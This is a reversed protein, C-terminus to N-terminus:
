LYNCYNCSNIPIFRDDAVDSSARTGQGARKDETKLIYFPHFACRLIHLLISPSTPILCLTPPASRPFLSFPSNSSFHACFCFFLTEASSCHENYHMTAHILVIEEDKAGMVIIASLLLILPFMQTLDLPVMGEAWTRQIRNICFILSPPPFALFPGLHSSFFPSPHKLWPASVRRFTVVRRLGSLRVKPRMVQNFAANSDRWGVGTKSRWRNEVPGKMSDDLLFWPFRRVPEWCM